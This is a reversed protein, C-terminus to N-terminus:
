GVERINQGLYILMNIACNSIFNPLIEWADFQLDRTQLFHAIYSFTNALSAGKIFTPFDFATSVIISDPIPLFSRTSRPLPEYYWVIVM